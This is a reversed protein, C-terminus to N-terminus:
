KSLTKRFGVQAEPTPHTVLGFKKWTERTRWLGLGNKYMPTESQAWNKRSNWQHKLALDWPHELAWTRSISWLGLGVPAGSGLHMKTYLPPESQASIKRLEVPAGSGLDWSTSLLGLGSKHPPSDTWVSSFKKLNLQHELALTGNSPPFLTSFKRLGFSTSWLGQSTVEKAALSGFNQEFVFCPPGVQTRSLCVSVINTVSVEPWLVMEDDRLIIEALCFYTMSYIITMMLAGGLWFIQDRLGDPGTFLRGQVCERMMFIRKINIWRHWRGKLMKTESCSVVGCSIATECCKRVPLCIEFFTQLQGYFICFSQIAWPLLRCVQWFKRPARWGISDCDTIGTEQSKKGRERPELLFNNTYFMGSLGFIYAFRLSIKLVLQGVRSTWFWNNKNENVVPEMDHRAYTRILKRLFLHFGGVNFIQFICGVSKQPYTVDWYLHNVSSAGDHQHGFHFM